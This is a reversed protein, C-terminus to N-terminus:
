DRRRRRRVVALGALGVALLAISAPEPVAAAVETIVVEGNGTQFDAQLIQDAGADFSGGGGGGPCGDTSAFGYGGGGGSYGGGGGGCHAGGGAGGGGFGGAGNSTFSLPIGGM